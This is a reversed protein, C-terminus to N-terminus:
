HHRNGVREATFLSSFAVEQARARELHADAVCAALELMLDADRPRFALEEPSVGTRECWRALADLGAISSIFRRQATHRWAFAYEELMGAALLRLARARLHMLHVAPDGIDLLHVTFRFPLTERHEDLCRLLSISGGEVVALGNETTLTELQRILASAAADAPFERRDGAPRGPISPYPLRPTTFRPSRGVPEHTNRGTRVARAM